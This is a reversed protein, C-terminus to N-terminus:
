HNEIPFKNCKDINWHETLKLNSNHLSTLYNRNLYDDFRNFQAHLTLYHMQNTIFHHTKLIGQIVLRESFLISTQKKFYRHNFVFYAKLLYFQLISIWFYAIAFSLRLFVLILFEFLNILLYEAISNTWCFYVQVELVQNSTCLLNSSFLTLLSCTM